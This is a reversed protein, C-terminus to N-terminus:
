NVKAKKIESVVPYLSLTSIFILLILGVLGFGMLNIRTMIDYSGGNLWHAFTLGAFFLVCVGLMAGSFRGVIDLKNKM